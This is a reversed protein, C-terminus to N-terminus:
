FCVPSFLWLLHHVKLGLVAVAMAVVVVVTAARSTESTGPRM